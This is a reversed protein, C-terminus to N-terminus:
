FYKIGLKELKESIDNQKKFFEIKEFFSILM